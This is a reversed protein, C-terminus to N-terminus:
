FPPAPSGVTYRATCGDDQVSDWGLTEDSDEDEGPGAAPEEAVTSRGVDNEVAGVEDDGDEGEVVVIGGGGNGMGVMEAVAVVDPEEMERAAAVDRWTGACNTM